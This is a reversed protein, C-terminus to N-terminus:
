PTCGVKEIVYLHYRIICTVVCKTINCPLISGNSRQGGAVDAQQYRGQYAGTENFSFKMSHHRIQKELM